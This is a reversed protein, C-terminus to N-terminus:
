AMAATPIQASTFGLSEYAHRMCNTAATSEQDTPLIVQILGAGPALLSAAFFRQHQMIVGLMEALGASYYGNSFTMGAVGIRAPERSMWYECVLNWEGKGTLHWIKVYPLRKGPAYEIHVLGGQSVPFLDKWSLVVASRLIRDMEISIPLTRHQVRNM